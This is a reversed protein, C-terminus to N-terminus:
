AGAHSLFTRNEDIVAGLWLVEQQSNLANDLRLCLNEGEQHASM